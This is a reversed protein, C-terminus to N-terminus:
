VKLCSRDTRAMGEGDVGGAVEPRPPTIINTALEAVVAGGVGGNGDIEGGEGAAWYLVDLKSSDSSTGAGKVREGYIDVAVEPRPSWVSEALEAVIAGGVGWNGDVKGSESAAWDLVEPKQGGGGVIVVREGYIDIAIEPCPSRVGIALKAVVTGGVGWNGDVKGGEGAAWHLVEVELGDSSACRVWHSNISVAIEPCPSCTAEALEAIAGGGVRGDGDVKGSEGAAWHLVETELGDGAAEVM